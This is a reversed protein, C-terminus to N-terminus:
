RKRRIRRQPNLPNLPSYTYSDEIDKNVDIWKKRGILIDDQRKGYCDDCYGSSCSFVEFQSTKGCDQCVFTGDSYTLDDKLPIRVEHIIKDKELEELRKLIDKITEEMMCSHSSHHFGGTSIEVARDINEMREDMKNDIWKQNLRKIEKKSIQKKNSM